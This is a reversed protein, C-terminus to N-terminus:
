ELFADIARMNSDFQVVLFTVYEPDINWQYKEIVLYRVTSDEGIREKGLLDQVKDYDQGILLKSDLLNQVM